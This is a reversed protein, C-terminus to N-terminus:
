LSKDSGYYKPLWDAIGLKAWYGITKFPMFEEVYGFQDVTVENYNLDLWSVELESATPSYEVDLRDGYSLIDEGPFMGRKLLQTSKEIKGSMSAVFEPNRNLRPVLYLTYGEQNFTNEKLCKLFHNISGFYAKDRNEKWEIKQDYNEPELEKFKPKISYQVRGERPSWKFSVLIIDLEYGLAKNIVKLPKDAKAYLEDYAGNSFSLQEENLIECDDAYDSQGIFYTKFIGLNNDWNPPRESVVEITELEYAKPNLEFDLDKIANAKLMFSHSKVEYGIMSIVIEHRGSPLNKIQFIGYQDTSTGWTTESIFVNVGPLGKGTEKDIVVGRVASNFEQSFITGVAIFLFLITISAFSRKM